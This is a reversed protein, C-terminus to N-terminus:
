ILMNEQFVLLCLVQSFLRHPPMRLIDTHRDSPTHTHKHTYICAYSCLHLACVRARICTLPHLCFPRSIGRKLWGRSTSILKRPRRVLGNECHWCVRGGRGLLASGGVGVGLVTTLMCLSNVILVFPFLILDMEDRWSHIFSMPQTEWFSKDRSECATFFFFFFGSLCSM